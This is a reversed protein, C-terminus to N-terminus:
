SQPDAERITTHPPGSATLPGGDNEVPEICRSDDNRPSSVRRSVPFM